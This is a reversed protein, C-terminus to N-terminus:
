ILHSLCFVPPKLYPYLLSLKHIKFIETAASYHIPFHYPFFLLVVVWNAAASIWSSSKPHHYSFWTFTSTSPTDNQLHM